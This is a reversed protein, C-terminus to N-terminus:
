SHSLLHIFWLRWIPRTFTILSLMVCDFSGQICFKFASFNPTSSWDNWCRDVDLQSTPYVSTLLDYVTWLLLPGLYLGWFLFGGHWTPTPLPDQLPMPTKVPGPLSSPLLTRLTSMSWCILLPLFCVFLCVWPMALTWSCFFIVWASSQISSQTGVPIWHSGWM